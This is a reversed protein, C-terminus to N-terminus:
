RNLFRRDATGIGMLTRCCSLPRGCLRGRYLSIKIARSLARTSLSFAVAGEACFASESIIGGFMLVRIGIGQSPASM